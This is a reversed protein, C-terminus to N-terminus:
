LAGHSGRVRSELLPLDARAARRSTACAGPRSALRARAHPTPAQAGCSGHMVPSGLQALRVVVGRRNHCLSLRTRSFGHALTRAIVHCAASTSGTPARSYAPNQERTRQRARTTTM